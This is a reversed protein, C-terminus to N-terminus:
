ALEEGSRMGIEVTIRVGFLAAEAGDRSFKSTNLIELL